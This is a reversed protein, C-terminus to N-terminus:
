RRRRLVTNELHRIERIEGSEQLVEVIDFRYTVETTKLLRLYDEATRMLARAKRSDVAREPRSWSENSRTKVEVFVLCKGDRFILDIEGRRTSFNETLFKLGQKKLYAKAAQEGSSGTKLHEPREDRKGFKLKEWFSV